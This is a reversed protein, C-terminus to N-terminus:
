IESAAPEISRALGLYIGLATMTMFMVDLIDHGFMLNVSGMCFYVIATSMLLTGGFRAYPDTKVRLALVANRILVIFISITAIVGLTGMEVAATLFGNHFHTFSLNIGYRQKLAISVFHGTEAQGHGIIPAERLADLGIHWMAIRVGLSTEYNGSDEIGRWDDILVQIRQSVPIVAVIALLMGVVILTTVTKRSLDAVLARRYIWLIAASALAVAFWSMRSESFVLAIFGAAYAGTLWPKWRREGHFLGALVVTMALAVATAFVISNGAGGEARIGLLFYQIAGVVLASVCSVSSGFIAANTIQSKDSIKWVSYAFPFSLFAFGSVLAWGYNHGRNVLTSVTGIMVFAYLAAAMLLMPRDRSFRAHGTAITVACWIAGGHFLFSTISGLTAPMATCIVTVFRNVIPLSALLRRYNVIDAVRSRLM